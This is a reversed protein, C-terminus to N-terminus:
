LRPQEFAPHRHFREVVHVLANELLAPPSILFDILSNLNIANLTSFSLMLRLSLSLKLFLFLSLSRICCCICYCLARLTKIPRAAASSRFFLGRVDREREVVFIDREKMFVISKDM